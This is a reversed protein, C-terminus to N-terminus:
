KAAGTNKKWDPDIWARHLPPSDGANIVLDRMYPKRLHKQTYIYLPIIPVEETRIKDAQWLIRLREARDLTSEAKKFLADYEKNCWRARNYPSGCKFMLLFQSEPDPTDAIWGFRALQYNGATTEKLYTKWEQSSLEIDLGLNQKWQHQMFEAIIKHGESGSNFKLSIKDPFDDGMEKQALALEAEAKKIDFDLGKPPIYCYQGKIIAAIGPTDRTTGCLALEEDTLTSIARGPVFQATPFEGGNLLGPIPSRDVSYSLARRLHVNNLKETNINYFYIGLYPAATYDKYPKGGRKTGNVVPLYSYPITNSSVADCSGQLYYNTSAAQDDIAYITMRELKVLDRGVYTDSRILEIRDRVHWETMHFAGSTVLLGNHPRTWGLPSRSVSERPTPRYPRGHLDDIIYPMPGWTELVFTHPDPTQLGLVDPLMLLMSGPVSEVRPKFSDDPPLTVGPRHEPPIDRVTFLVGAHPSVDLEALPVWGYYWDLGLWFVYAWDRNPGGLEVIEVEEGPPVTAYAESEDKGLDRLKLPKSAKRLNSNPIDAKNPEKEVAGDVGVVEVIDGKKFSGFDDMLMKARGANFLGANKVPDLPTVNRSITTPHLIRAIHYAFDASTLARGNSWKADERLHFTFVRQDPSVEWSKAVSPEPTGSFDMGVEALGTFMLRAIKSGTTSTVLAPDVYEPEASNCFRFRTPDPSDDVKGFYDGEPLGCSAALLVLLVLPFRM